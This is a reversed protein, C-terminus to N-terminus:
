YGWTIVNGIILRIYTELNKNKEFDVHNLQYARTGQITPDGGFAIVVSLGVEHYRLERLMQAESWQTLEPIKKKSDIEKLKRVYAIQQENTMGATSEEKDDYKAFEENSMPEVDSNRVEVETKVVSATNATVVVSTAITTTIEGTPIVLPVLPAVISSVVVTTLISLVSRWSFNGMPDVYMVPNNNCYAFM